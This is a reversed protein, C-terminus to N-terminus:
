CCKDQNGSKTKGQGLIRRRRLLNTWLNALLDWRKLCTILKSTM